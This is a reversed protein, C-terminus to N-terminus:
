ICTKSDKMRLIEFATTLNQLKTLKVADTGELVIQLIDWAVKASSCASITRFESAAVGNFTANIAKNCNSACKEKQTWQAKSKLITQWDIFIKLDPIVKKLLM